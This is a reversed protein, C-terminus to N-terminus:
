EAHLNHGTTHREARTCVDTLVGSINGSLTIVEANTVTSSRYSRQCARYCQYLPQVAAHSTRHAANTPRHTPRPRFRQTSQHARDRTRPQILRCHGPLRHPHHQRSAHLWGMCHRSCHHPQRGATCNNLQIAALSLDANYRRIASSVASLNPLSALTSTFNNWRYVLCSDSPISNSIPFTTSNDPILRALSANPANALQSLTPLPPHSGYHLRDATTRHQREGDARSRHLQAAVYPQGGSGDCRPGSLRVLVALPQSRGAEIAPVPFTHARESHCCGDAGARSSILEMVRQYYQGVAWGRWGAVAACARTRQHVADAAVMDSLSVVNTFLESVNQVAHVLTQSGMAELLDLVPQQTSQLTDAMAPQAQSPTKQRRSATHRHRQLLGAGGVDMYASRVILM